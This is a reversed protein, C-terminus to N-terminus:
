FYLFFIIVVLPFNIIYVTFTSIKNAIIFIISHPSLSQSLLSNKITILVPTTTILTLPLPSLLSLYHRHCNSRLVIIVSLLLYHNHITPSVPTPLPYVLTTIPSTTGYLPDSTNLPLLPKNSPPYVPVRGGIWGGM